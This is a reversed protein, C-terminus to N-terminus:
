PEVTVNVDAAKVYVYAEVLNSIDLLIAVTNDWAKGYGHMKIKFVRQDELFHYDDSYELTGEKSSGIGFFYEEPLCLIAKGTPVRNSRVVDTPFPFINNTFSGAANLVTTAPMVKSLYDKMNCILTVEDFSRMAGGHKTYGSKPSGDSNAATSAPTIVGTADATYYVETECLEALVAGYEKPMFSTLAVATKQPYGTSSSVSVGQHIDRDLGIPMNLGNGTVIADELAVALAEKLFTRIYNDLFAPGLDLMDKEIVAYASLKCQTIEVTRFASAIQQAIQSNVAGWVATQVSHDNLIWRTMYQVSQFNIKALLPHEALLDKYVDEIITTPMVKDSLLGAYTQVPNKSKGADILAQYYKTEEATLQRFGRQALINRDGNASEFDAQVTAAIAQAFQEFAGQMVEPTTDEANFAAQLAATAETIMSNKRLM